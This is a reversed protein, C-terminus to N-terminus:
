AASWDPSGDVGTNTLRRVGSGDANMTYIGGNYSYALKTGDPSWSPDSADQRIRRQATGDANMVFVAGYRFAPGRDFAIRTGDPSWDPYADSIRNRTLRRQQTGDAGVVFIEESKVCAASSANDDRSCARRALPRAFAIQSGDPSWAPSFGDTLRRLDTGDVNVVYIAPRRIEDGFSGRTFAIQRADPSWAPEWADRIWLRQDTGDANMLWVQKRDKPGYYFVDFAIRRADPSWAPGGSDREDIHLFIDRNEGTPSMVAVSYADVPDYVRSSYAIMGMSAGQAELPAAAATPPGVSLLVLALALVSAAHALKGVEAM